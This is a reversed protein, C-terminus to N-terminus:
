INKHEYLCVCLKCRRWELSIFVFYITKTKMTWGFQIIIRWTLLQATPCQHDNKLIYHRVIHALILSRITWYHKTTFSNRPFSLSLHANDQCFPWKMKLTIKKIQCEVQDNVREYLQLRCWLKHTKKESYWMPHVKLTEVMKKKKNKEHMSCLHYIQELLYIPMSRNRHIAFLNKWM